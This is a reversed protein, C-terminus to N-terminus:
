NREIKWQPFKEQLWQFDKATFSTGSAKLTTFNESIKGIFCISLLLSQNIKDSDNQHTEVGGEHVIAKFIDKTVKGVKSLVPIHPLTVEQHNIRTGIAGAEIVQVKKLEPALQSLSTMWSFRDLWAFPRLDFYPTNPLFTKYEELLADLQKKYSNYTLLNLNAKSFANALREMRNAFKFAKDLNNGLLQKVDINPYKQMIFLRYLPTEQASQRWKMCVRPMLATLKLDQQGLIFFIEYVIESPLDVISINQTELSSTHETPIVSAIATNM